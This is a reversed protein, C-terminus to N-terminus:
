AKALAQQAKEFAAQERMLGRLVRIEEPVFYATVLFFFCAIWTTICIWQIAGHLSARDAIIGAVL